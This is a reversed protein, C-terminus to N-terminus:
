KQQATKKGLNLRLSIEGKTMNLQEAIETVSKGKEWLNFIKATIPNNVEQKSQPFLVMQSSGSNEKEKLVRVLDKGEALKAEFQDLYQKAMFSNETLLQELEEKLTLYETKLSKLESFKLLIIILFVSNLYVTILNFVTIRM